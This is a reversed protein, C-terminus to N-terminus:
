VARMSRVIAQGFFFTTSREQEPQFAKQNSSTAVRTRVNVSLATM